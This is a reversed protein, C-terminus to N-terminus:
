APKKNRHTLIIGLLCAIALTTLELTLFTYINNYKASNKLANTLALTITITILYIPLIHRGIAVIPNYKSLTIKKFILELSSILFIFFSFILIIYGPAIQSTVGFVNSLDLPKLFSIAFFSVIIGSFLGYILFRKPRYESYFYSTLFGAGVLFFWPFFPFFSIRGQPDGILVAAAYGGPALKNLFLRLLPTLFLVCLTLFFLIKKDGYRDLIFITLVALAYFLFINWFLFLPRLNLGFLFGLFVLLAMRFCIKKFSAGRKLYFYFAAGASVLILGVITLDIIILWMPLGISYFSAGTGSWNEGFWWILVHGFLAGLLGLTKIADLAQWRDSHPFM